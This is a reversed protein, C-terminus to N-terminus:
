THGSHGQHISQNRTGVLLQLTCSHQSKNPHSRWCTKHGRNKHKTAAPTSALIEVPRQGPQANKALHSPQIGASLGRKCHSHDNRSCNHLLTHPAQGQKIVAPAAPRPNVRHASFSRPLSKFKACCQGDCTENHTHQGTRSSTHASMNHVPTHDAHQVDAQQKLPTITQGLSTLTSRMFHTYLFLPNAQQLQVIPWIHRSLAKDALCTM